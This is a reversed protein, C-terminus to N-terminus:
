EQARTWNEVIILLDDIDVVGNQDIDARNCWSYPGCGTAGWNEMLIEVDGCDVKGDLNIDGPSHPPVFVEAQAVVITTDNQVVRDKGGCILVTKDPLLEVRPLHRAHIMSGAEVWVGTHPDYIEISDLVNAAPTGPKADDGCGGSGSRGRGGFVAIRGDALTCWGFDDRATIMSGTLTWRNTNPDYIECSNLLKGNPDQGCMIMAKGEPLRAVHAYTRPTNQLETATLTSQFEANGHTNLVVAV